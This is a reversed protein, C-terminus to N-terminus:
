GAPRGRSGNSSSLLISSKNVGGEGGATQVVQDTSDKLFLLTLRVATVPKKTCMKSFFEIFFSSLLVLLVVNKVSDRRM